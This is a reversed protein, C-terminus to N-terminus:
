YRRSQQAMQKARQKKEKRNKRREVKRHHPTYRNRELNRMTKEWDNVQAGYGEPIPFRDIYADVESENSCNIKWLPDKGTWLDELRLAKRTSEVQIHVLFNRCDVVMWHESPDKRNGSPGDLAGAVGVEGLNRYRLHRVLQDSIQTLHRYTPATVLISGDLGGMRRDDPDDLVCVVDEGGCSVVVTEIEEKTLMVHKRVPILGRQEIQPQDNPAPTTQSQLFSNPTSLLMSRRTKMWDVAPPANNDPKEDEEEQPVTSAQSLKNALALQAEAAKQQQLYAEPKGQDGLLPRSPPIWGEDDDDDNTVIVPPKVAETDDEEKGGGNSSLWRHSGFSHCNPLQRPRDLPQDLLYSIQSASRISRHSRVSITTRTSVLSSQTTVAARNSTAAGRRTLELCAKINRLSCMAM